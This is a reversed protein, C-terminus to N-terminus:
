EKELSLIEYKSILGAIDDTKKIRANGDMKRV